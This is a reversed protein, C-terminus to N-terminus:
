IGEGNRRMAGPACGAIKKFVTHFYSINSFGVAEAIDAVRMATGSLLERAAMVRVENLHDTFFRDTEQRFLRGLYAASVDMEAALTKISLNVDGYRNRVRELATRVLPSYADGRAGRILAMLADLLGTLAAELERMDAAGHVAGYAEERFARLERPPLPCRAAARMAHGLYEVVHYKVMSSKGGTLKSLGSLFAKIDGHVAQADAALLDAALKNEDFPPAEGRGDMEPAGEAVGWIRRREQMNLAERYSVPLDRYLSVEPGFSAICEVGACARVAQACEDLFRQVEGADPLSDQATLIAAVNDEADAVFYGTLGRRAAAESCADLSEFMIHRLTVDENDFIPRLMLVQMHNSRLTIGLLKCKERLEKLEIWGNLLRNLTNNRLSALTESFQMKRAAIDAMACVTDSITAELEGVDVPKLLYNQAGLRMSTRVYDFNDYGSLVVVMPGDTRGRLAELVKLGNMRPMEIDLIMLDPHASDVLALAEEGDGAEGVIEIGFDAWEIIRGIGTRVIEEDDVVILRYM